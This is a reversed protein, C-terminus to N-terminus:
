VAEALFFLLIASGIIAELWTLLRPHMFCYLGALASAL